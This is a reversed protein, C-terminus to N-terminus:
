QPRPLYAAAQTLVVGNTLIFMWPRAQDVSLRSYVM